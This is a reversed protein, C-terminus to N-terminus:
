LVSGTFNAKGGVEKFLEDGLSFPLGPYRELLKRFEPEPPHVLCEFCLQETADLPRGDKAADTAMRSLDDRDPKAFVLFVPERGVRATLSMLELGENEAKLRKILEAREAKATSKKNNKPM